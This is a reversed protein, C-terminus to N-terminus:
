MGTPCTQNTCSFTTGSADVTCYSCGGDPQSLWLGVTGTATANLYLSGDVSLASATVTAANQNFDLYNTTYTNGSLREGTGTTVLAGTYVAGDAYIDQWSLAASGIDYINDTDPYVSQNVVSLLASGGRYIEGDIFIDNWSLAASGIDYVNDVTPYVNEDIASVDSAGTVYLPNSATGVEQNGSNFLVIPGAWASGCALCLILGLMINRM